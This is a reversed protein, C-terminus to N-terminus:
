LSRGADLWASWFANIGDMFKGASLDNMGTQLQGNALSLENANGRANTADAIAIAAFQQDAQALSNIDALLAAKPVKSLGDNYLEVM